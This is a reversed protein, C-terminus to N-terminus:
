ILGNIYNGITWFILTFPPKTTALNPQKTGGFHGVDVHFDSNM